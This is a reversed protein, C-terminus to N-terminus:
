VKFIDAPRRKRVQGDEESEKGRRHGNRRRENGEEGDGGGRVCVCVGKHNM